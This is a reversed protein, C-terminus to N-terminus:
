FRNRIGSFASGTYDAFRFYEFLDTKVFESIRGARIIGREGHFVATDCLFLPSGISDLPATGFDMYLVAFPNAVAIVWATSGPFSTGGVSVFVHFKAHEGTELAVSRFPIFEVFDSSNDFSGDVVEFDVHANCSLLRAVVYRGFCIHEECADGTLEGYNNCM